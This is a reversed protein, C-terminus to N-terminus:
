MVVHAFNTEASRSITIKRLADGRAGIKACQEFSRVRIEGIWVSSPLTSDTDDTTSNKAMSLGTFIGPALGPANM